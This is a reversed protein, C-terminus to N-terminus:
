NNKKANNIRVIEDSALRKIEWNILQDLQTQSM